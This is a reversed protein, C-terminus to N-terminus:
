WHKKIYKCSRTGDVSEDLLAHFRTLKIFRCLNQMSATKQYQHFHRYPAASSSGMDKSETPMTTIQTYQSTKTLFQVIIVVFTCIDFFLIFYNWFIQQLSNEYVLPTQSSPASSFTQILYSFPPFQVNPFKMCSVQVRQWTYSSHDLLPPDSQCPIYCSHLSSFHIYSKPPFDLLFSVM